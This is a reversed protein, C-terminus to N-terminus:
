KLSGGTRVNAQSWIAVLSGFQGQEDFRAIDLTDVEFPPDVRDCIATFACAAHENHIRVPGEPEFRIRGGVGNFSRQFFDRIAAHGLYETGIPDELLAEPAFLSVVGEVDGESLCFAYREFMQRIHEASPIIQAM